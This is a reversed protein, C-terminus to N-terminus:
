QIIVASTHTKGQNFWSLAPLQWLLPQTDPGGHPRLLLWNKTIGADATLHKNPYVCHSHMASQYPLPLVFLFYDVISTSLFLTPSLILISRLKYTYRNSNGNKRPFYVDQDMNFPAVILMKFCCYRMTVNITIYQNLWQLCILGDHLCGTADTVCAKRNGILFMINTRQQVNVLSSM